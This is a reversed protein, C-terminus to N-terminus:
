KNLGALIARLKGSLEGAHEQDLARDHQSSIRTTWLEAFNQDQNWGMQEDLFVKQVAAKRARSVVPSIPALSSCKVLTVEGDYGHLMCERDTARNVLGIGNHIHRRMRSYISDAGDDESLTRAAREETVINAFLQQALSDHEERDRFRPYARPCASDVMIVHLVTENQERLIDAMNLTIMGGMSWGGLLYPGQPQVERKILALYEQAIGRLSSPLQYDDDSYIPSTVGYVPRDHGLEELTLYPLALGSIAHVLFLPTLASTPDGQILVLRDM